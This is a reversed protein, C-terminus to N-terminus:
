CKQLPRFQFRSHRRVKYQVSEHSLLVISSHSKRSQITYLRCSSCIWLFVTKCVVFHDFHFCRKRGLRFFSENEGSHFQYGWNNYARVFPLIYHWGILKSIDAIPVTVTKMKQITNKVPKTKNSCNVRQRTIESCKHLNGPFSITTVVM